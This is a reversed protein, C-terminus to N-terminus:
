ANSVHILYSVTEAGLSSVTQYSLCEHGVRLSLFRTVHRLLKGFIAQILELLLLHETGWKHILLCSESQNLLKGFIVSDSRPPM